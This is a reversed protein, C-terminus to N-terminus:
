TITSTIAVDGPTLFKYCEKSGPELSIAYSADVTKLGWFTVLLLSLLSLSLRNQWALGQERKRITRASSNQTNMKEITVQGPSEQGFRITLSQKWPYLVTM